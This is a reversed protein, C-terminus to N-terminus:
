KEGENKKFISVFIQANKNGFSTVNMSWDTDIDEVAIRGSEYKYLRM